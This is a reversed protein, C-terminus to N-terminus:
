RTWSPTMTHRASSAAQSSSRVRSTLLSSPPHFTLLPSPPHIRLYRTRDGSVCRWRLSRRLVALRLEMREKRDEETEPQSPDRPRWPSRMRTAPSRAAEAGEVVPAEIASAAVKDVRLARVETLLEAVQSQLTSDGAGEEEEEYGDGDDYFAEDEVQYDEAEEEGAHLAAVVVPPSSVPVAEGRPSKVMAKQVALAVISAASPTQQTTGVSVEGGTLQAVRDQYVKAFKRLDDVDSGNVGGAAIAGELEKLTQRYGVLAQNTSGASDSKVADAALAKARAVAQAASFAGKLM